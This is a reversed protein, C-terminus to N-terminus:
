LPSACAPVRFTANVFVRRMTSGLAHNVVLRRVIRADVCQLGAQQEFLMRVGDLTFFFSRTGDQRVYYNFGLRQDVSFRLQAQDMEAYDRFLVMGGPRMKALVSQVATLMRQPEVASLVFLFTAFDVLPIEKPLPPDARSADAVFGRCRPHNQENLLAVAKPAFDIGYATLHEFAQTLPLMTNGVGCGVELLRVPEKGHTRERLAAGLM